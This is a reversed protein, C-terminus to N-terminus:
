IGSGPDMKVYRVETRPSRAIQESANQRPRAERERRTLMIAGVMAVFLILGAMEFFPAYRTYLVTGITTASSVLPTVIEGPPAVKLAVLVLEGLMGGFLLLWVGARWGRRRMPAPKRLDLMMVIFLFLVALAGVYVIVLVMALYAAGQLVFIGAVAFFDLVLYLVSHVPNHSKVMMMAALVAVLSFGYFFLLEGM